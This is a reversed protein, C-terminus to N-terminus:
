PSAAAPCSRAIPVTRSSRRSRKLPIDSKLRILVHTRAILRAAREAGPWNRDMIWLADQTFLHPYQEMATDLLQQEGAAKGTGAPGHPMGLLSRTSVDNLPLARLCPYPSSDDGTGASGFAARNAPTDPVRILTGDLSRIKLPRGPGAAAARWDRDEHGAWAARLVIAQLEELPEPGLANRWDGCARESAPVWARAWPVMALNNVSV